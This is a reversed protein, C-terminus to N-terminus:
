QRPIVLLQNLTQILATLSAPETPSADITRVTKTQGAVSVTIEHTYRDCCNNEPVYSDELSMFNASRVAAALEAMQASDLQKASIPRQGQYSVQGDAAVTWTDNVGQLGGTRHYVLFASESQSSATPLPSQLPSEVPSPIRTAFPPLTPSPLPTVAPSCAALSLVLVVCVVLLKRLM